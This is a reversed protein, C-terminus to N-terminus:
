INHCKFNTNKNKMVFCVSRPAIWGCFKVIRDIAM